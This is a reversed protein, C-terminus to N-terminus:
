DKSTAYKTVHLVRPCNRDEGLIGRDPVFVYGCAYGARSRDDAIRTHRLLKVVSSFSAWEFRILLASIM